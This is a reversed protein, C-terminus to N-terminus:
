CKSHCCAIMAEEIVTLDKLEPPVDGLFTQNVLALPPVKNHYLSSRCMSCLTLEYCGRDTVSVGTPDVFVDKLIGDRYPMPLKQEETQHLFM